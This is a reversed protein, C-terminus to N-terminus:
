YVFVPLCKVIFQRAEKEQESDNLATVIQTFGEKLDLYDDQKELTYQAARRFVQEYEALVVELWSEVSQAEIAKLASIEHVVAEVNEA